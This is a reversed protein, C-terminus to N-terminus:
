RAEGVTERKRFFRRDTLAAVALTKRLSTDTTQEVQAHNRGLDDRFLAIVRWLRGATDMQEFLDGIAVRTHM